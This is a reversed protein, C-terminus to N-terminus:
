KKIGRYISNAIHNGVARAHMNKSVKFTGGDIQSMNEWTSFGAPMGKEIVLRTLESILAERIKHRDAPSFGHLILKDINIEISQNM